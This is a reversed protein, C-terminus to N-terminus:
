NMRQDFLYSAERRLRDLEHSLEAYQPSVACYGKEIEGFFDISSDELLKNLVKPLVDDQLQLHFDLRSDALFSIEQMIRYLENM